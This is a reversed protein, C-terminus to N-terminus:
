RPSYLCVDHSLHNTNPLNLTALGKKAAAAALREAEEQAEAAAAALREAEEQNRRARQGYSHSTFPSSLFLDDFDREFCHVYATKSARRLGNWESPRQGNARM